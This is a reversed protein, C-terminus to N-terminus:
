IVRAYKASDPAWGRWVPVGCYRDGEPCYPTRNARHRMVCPPGLHRGIEPDVAAIQEAEDLSARWIEEQANWCLRSVLKHHLGTLDGSETFRIAVANPLVYAALEAPAGARLMATAADWARAMAERYTAQAAPGAAAVLPPEIYDPEGTFHAMLCPRSGPTTRHRQDQSDATHSLKKRFTYHVHHLTRTLKGMTTLRLTEGLLPNRAPDLVMAVAGHDSLATVPLGLVERVAQALVAANGSGTTVLRSVRGELGRDFQDRFARRRAATAADPLGDAPAGLSQFAKWELTEELLIPEELLNALLPDVALVADVMQRVVERQESPADATQCLRWYRMLTIAPVTHYLYAITGLPLVYRAIEQAKKQVDRATAKKGARAPFRALYQAEAMPTLQDILTRYAAMAHTVAGVYAERAAGEVPPIVFADPKVEVYRQSVQESNYYPHSHLFTWLLQRSVSEIAFQFHAHQLTTHHGAAYISRAIRDRQEVRKRKQEPDVVADGSVDETAIIGSSSYCTRAAAVANEYSRPFYNVLRVRPGPTFGRGGTPPTTM